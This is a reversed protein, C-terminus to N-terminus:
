RNRSAFLKELTYSLSFQSSRGEHKNNKLDKELARLKSCQPINVSIGWNQSPFIQDHSKNLGIVPLCFCKIDCILLM